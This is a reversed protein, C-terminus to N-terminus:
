EVNHNLICNLGLLVLNPVVFIHDKALSEFFHSDGGSIFAKIGPFKARFDEIHGEIEHALGYWIGSKMCDVTTRGIPSDPIDDMSVLPLNATLSHMSQSRLRLGPSIAGGMYIDEGNVFDFTLCTGLDIALVPGGSNLKWAGVAGALRDLGLTSQSSYGNKIPLPVKHDLFLFNFPLLSQLESKSYRVSSVLCHKFSEKGCWDLAKEISDFSENSYIQDGDFFASKIRTNGIDICLQM